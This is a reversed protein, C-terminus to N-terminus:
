DSKVSDYEIITKNVCAYVLLTYLIRRLIDQGLFGFSGTLSVSMMNRMLNNDNFKFFM